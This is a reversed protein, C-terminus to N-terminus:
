IDKIEIPSGTRIISYTIRGGFLHDCEQVYQITEKCYNMVNIVNFQDTKLTDLRDRLYKKPKYQEGGLIINDRPKIKMDTCEGNPYKVYYGIFYRGKNVGAYLCGVSLLSDNRDIITFDTHNMQFVWADYVTNKVIKVIEDQEKYKVIKQRIESLAIQIGPEVGLGVAAHNDSLTVVKREDIHFIESSIPNSVKGDAMILVGDYLLVSIAITM